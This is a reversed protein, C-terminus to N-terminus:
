RLLNKAYGEEIAESVWKPIARAKRLVIDGQRALRRLAKYVVSTSSVDCMEMLVRVTPPCHNERWFEDIADQIDNDYMGSM